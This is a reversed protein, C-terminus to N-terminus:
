ASCAYLAFSELCVQCSLCKARYSHLARKESMTNGSIIRSM